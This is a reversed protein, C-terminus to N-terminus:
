VLGNVPSHVEHSPKIFDNGCNKKSKRCTSKLLDNSEDSHNVTQRQQENASRDPRVLRRVRGDGVRALVRGVLIYIYHLYTYLPFAGDNWFFVM